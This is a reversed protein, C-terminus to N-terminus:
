IYGPILLAVAGRKGCEAASRLPFSNFAISFVAKASAFEFYKKLGWRPPISDFLFGIELMRSVDGADDAM